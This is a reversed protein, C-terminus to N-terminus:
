LPRETGHFNDYPRLSIELGATLSTGLWSQLRAQQEANGAFLLRTLERRTGIQVVRTLQRDGRRVTLSISSRHGVLWALGTASFALQDHSVLRDDPHIGAAEAGSDDLVHVVRDGDLIVGLAKVDTVDCTFGLEELREITSLANATEVERRILAEAGLEAFVGCVDDHTYGDDRAGFRTYLANFGDDLSGSRCRLFADLDFAVLMGVDYYDIMTNAANPYRHHNLFTACSSDLLTSRRYGPRTTTARHYNAVNAFFREPSCFGARVSLLFEYYRTFGEAVWLEGPFAGAVLDASALAAPKLRCVNWAHVLEHAAVRLASFRAEEDVLCLPGVGVLTSHAHELGWHARSDFSWVFTYEAFPFGGFTEGTVRALKQVDDVFGELETDMGVARELFVHHFTAGTERRTCQAFAGLVVPLDLWAAFSPYVYSRQDEHRAGAPHHMAWDEPFVWSVRVAGGLARVHPVRTAHVVAHELSVYGALEGWAVDAMVMRFRVRITTDSKAIRHGTWGERVVDLPAGTQADEAHVDVLDRGYRMFAYAGPVWSVTELLHEGAPLLLEGDIRAAHPVLTLRYEHTVDGSSRSPDAVPPVDSM